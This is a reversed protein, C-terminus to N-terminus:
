IQQCISHLVKIADDKLTKFLEVPSRDCGSAKNVASSGLAWKVKSELIDPEPHSIVDDYYDPENLDKKYLEVTHEKWKKEIEDTDVLDRGNRHKLTGMKPLFTEQINGIKRFLDRTKGTRNNEELKICQENFFAKKNSWATRQFDANLQIYREREGKSIAERREKTIQLAEESLWKAKKCKKKKPISKIGTKQVIDHVEM